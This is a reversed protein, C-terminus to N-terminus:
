SAMPKVNKGLPALHYEQRLRPSPTIPPFSRYLTFVLTMELVVCPQVRTIKCGEDSVQRAVLFNVSFCCSCAIGSTAVFFMELRKLFLLLHRLIHISHNVNHALYAPPNTIYESKESESESESRQGRVETM